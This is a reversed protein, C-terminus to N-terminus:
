KKSKQRKKSLGVKEFIPQDNRLYLYKLTLLTVCGIVNLSASTMLPIDHLFFGYLLWSTSGALLMLLMTWAVDRLHNTKLAKYVEPLLHTGTFIVGLYGFIQLEM